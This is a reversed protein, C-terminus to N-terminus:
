QWGGGFCAKADAPLPTKQATAHENVAITGVRLVLRAPQSDLKSPLCAPLVASLRFIPILSSGVAVIQKLDSVCRLLVTEFRVCMSVNAGPFHPCKPGFVRMVLGFIRVM